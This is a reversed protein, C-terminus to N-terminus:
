RKRFFSALRTNSCLAVYRRVDLVPRLLRKRCFIRHIIFSRLILCPHKGRCPSANNMLPCITWSRHTSERVRAFILARKQKPPGRKTHLFFYLCCYRVPRTLARLWRELAQWGRIPNYYNPQGNCRLHGTHRVANSSHSTQRQRQQQQQLQQKTWTQEGTNNHETKWSVHHETM